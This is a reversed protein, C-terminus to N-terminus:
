KGVIQQPFPSAHWDQRDEDHLSGDLAISAQEIVRNLIKPFWRLDGLAWTVFLVKNDEGTQEKALVLARNLGDIWAKLYPRLLHICKYKDAMLAIRYLNDVSPHEPIDHFQYHVVSLLVKLGYSDDDSMDIIWKGTLPRPHEGGYIFQRWTPSASAFNACLVHYLVTKVTDDNGDSTKVKLYLDETDDHFSLIPCEDIPTLHDDGEKDAVEEDDSSSTESDSSAEEDSSSPKEDLTSDPVQAISDNADFEISPIVLSGFISSSSSPPESDSM